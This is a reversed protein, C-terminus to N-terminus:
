SKSQTALVKAQSIWEDRSARGKFGELNEDVWALETDTWNAIQDFHYFGLKHLLAEMVSAVGKIQTLDDAKGGRPASLRTPETGVVAAAPTASAAEAAGELSARAANCAELKAQIDRRDRGCADLEAKLRDREAILDSNDVSESPNRGWILWGLIIGLILAVLMYLFMQTLLYAM